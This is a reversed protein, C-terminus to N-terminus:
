GGFGPRAVDRLLADAAADGTRMRAADWALRRGRAARFAVNALLVTETLPGSYGFACSPQTRAKCAAIWEGHHSPTAALWPAPARWAARRAAPGVEQRNYDSILWGDDGVFLVGNRWAALGREALMAEPRDKGAHWHLVVAPRDGRPGFEYRCRLAAPACDAHPPSGDAVLSTPADLELAWFALDTFHCSMDATTGGGFAWYRRWGMPHIGARYPQPAAPGLWLEWDLHPPPSEIEPLAQASWDTGNVFVVVERVPGVAGGRIAEVVRHYNENAHIQTGMQTVLGNAAALERLERAEAVTRTLPKECYVDLGARLALLSPLHHTHDPTSVVVADLDRTATPDLLIERHDRCTRATPFKAAAAALQQADVDCLAVVEEGAVGALNAAGRNGVGVVLLRLKEGPAKTPRGRPAAACGLPLLGAAAVSGALFSRRSTTM